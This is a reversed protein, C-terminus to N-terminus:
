EEVREVSIESDAAQEEQQAALLEPKPFVHAQEVQVGFGSLIAHLRAGEELCSAGVFDLYDTHTTADENVRIVVRKPM